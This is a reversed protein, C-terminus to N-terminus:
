YQEISSNFYEMDLKANPLGSRKRDYEITDNANCLVTMSIIVWREVGLDVCTRLVPM